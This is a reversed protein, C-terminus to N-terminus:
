LSLIVFSKESRVNSSAIQPKPQARSAAALGDNRHFGSDLRARNPAQCRLNKTLCRFHIGAEVPIVSLLVRRKPNTQPKNNRWSTVPTDLCGSFKINHSNKREYQHSVIYSCPMATGRCARLMGLKQLLRGTVKRVLKYCIVVM